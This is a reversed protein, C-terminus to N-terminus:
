EVRLSTVPDLALAGRLPKYIASGIAILLVGLGLGLALPDASEVGWLLGEVLRTTAMAGAIGVGLGLVISRGIPGLVARVISAADAGVAMRIGIERRRAAVALALVAFVGAASFLLGLAAIATFLEANMRQSYLAGRVVERYPLINVIALRSDVTRLEREMMAVASLPDGRVKLLLANGPRSYQQPLAFYAVPGPADLLTEQSADRVVGVVEFTRQPEDGESPDVLVRGLPDDGTWLREALAENVVVVAPAGLTDGVAFTRGALVEMEMIGFYGPWVRAITTTVPDPEDDSSLRATPHGSLPAYEAVTAGQVWPLADFRRKLEEYFRHRDSVPVDMSSTSVYSALTQRTDFGPDWSRAAGLTRLVLAAVFLLVVSLGIQVSVLVDRTGPIWRRSPRGSSSPAGRTGLAEAPSRRSARV